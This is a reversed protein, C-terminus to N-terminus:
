KIIMIQVSPGKLYITSQLFTGFQRFITFFLIGLCAVAFSIAVIGYTRFRWEASHRRKLSATIRESQSRNDTM